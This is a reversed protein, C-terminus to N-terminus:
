ASTAPPLMGAIHDRQGILYRMPNFSRRHEPTLGFRWLATVHRRTGYGKNGAWDYGAHALGRRAMEADRAVKAVISAAAIALCQRDGKIIAQQALPITPLPLADVLLYDPTVAFTTLRQAGWGEQGAPQIAGDLCAIAAQMALRTAGLINLRDILPAEVWGLAAGAAYRVIDQALRQRTAAPILKSDTVGALLDRDDYCAPTLVVAAAYVPGAWAGRGVEDVGAIACRGAARLSAEIGPTEIGPLVPRILPMRRIPRARDPM